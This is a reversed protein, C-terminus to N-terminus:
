DEEALKAKLQKLNQLHIMKDQIQIFGEDQLEQLVKSVTERAAGVMEAIQQHTIKVPIVFDNLDETTYNEMMYILKKILRSRVNLFTLDYIQQNARRLRDMTYDLLHFAINRDNEILLQFDSRRLIYLRTTMLCEATASRVLGPKMLAMEGFYEGERLFALIVKKSKDFTYISISGSGIFYIENGQDGELFILEGKRYTKQHMYPVLRDILAPEIERFFPISARLKTRDVPM